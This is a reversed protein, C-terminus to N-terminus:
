DDKFIQLAFFSFKYHLLPLPFAYSVNQQRTQKSDQHSTRIKSDRGYVGGRGPFTKRKNRQLCNAYENFYQNFAHHM